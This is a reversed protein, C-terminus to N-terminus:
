NFWKRGCWNIGRGFRYNSVGAGGAVEKRGGSSAKGIDQRVGSGDRHGQGVARLNHRMGHAIKWDGAERSSGGFGVDKVAEVRWEEGNALETISIASGGKGLMGHGDGMIIFGDQRAVAAVGGVAEPLHVNRAM